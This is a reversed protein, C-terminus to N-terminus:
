WPYRDVWYYDVQEQEDEDDDDDNDDNGRLSYDDRLKYEELDAALRAREREMQWREEAAADLQAELAWITERDEAARSELRETAQRTEGTAKELKQELRERMEILHRVTDSEMAAKWELRQYSEDNRSAEAKLREITQRSSNVLAELEMFESQYVKFDAEYHDLQEGDSAIQFELDEITARDGTAETHLESIEDRLRNHEDILQGIGQQLEDLQRAEEAARARAEAALEQARQCEADLEARLQANEDQLDYQEITLQDISEEFRNLKKIDENAAAEAQVQLDSVQQQEKNLQVRIEANEGQLFKYNVELEHVQDETVELKDRFELHKKHEWLLHGKLEEITQRNASAEAALREIEVKYTDAEGDHMAVQCELRQIEMRGDSTKERYYDTEEALQKVDEMLQGITGRNDRLQGASWALMRADAAVKEKLVSRWFELPLQDRDDNWMDDIVAVPVTDPAYNPITLDFELARVVDTTLWVWLPDEEYHLRFTLHDCAQRLVYINQRPHQVRHFNRFQKWLDLVEHRLTPLAYNQSFIYLDLLRATVRDFPHSLTAPAPAPAAATVQCTTPMAATTESARDDNDDDPLSFYSAISHTPSYRGLTKSSVSGNDGNELDKKVQYFIKLESLLDEDDDDVSGQEEASGDDVEDDDSTEDQLGDSEVPYPSDLRLEPIHLAKAYLWHSVTEVTDATTNELFTIVNSSELQSMNQFRSRFFDSEDILPARHLFWTRPGVSVGQETGQRIADGKVQVRVMPEHFFSDGAHSTKLRKAISPALPSDYASDRISMIVSPHIGHIHHPFIASEPFTLSELLAECVSHDQPFTRKYTFESLSYLKESVM